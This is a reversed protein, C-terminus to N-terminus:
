YSSYKDDDKDKDSGYGITDVVVEHVQSVSIGVPHNVTDKESNRATHLPIDFTLSPMTRGGFAKEGGYSGQHRGQRFLKIGDYLFLGVLPLATSLFASALYSHVIPLIKDGSM